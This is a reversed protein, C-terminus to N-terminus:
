KNVFNIQLPLLSAGLTVYTLSTPFPLFHCFDSNEDAMLLRHKSVYIELYHAELLPALSGSSVLYRLYTFHFIPLNAFFRDLAKESM